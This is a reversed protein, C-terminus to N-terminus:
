KEKQYIQIMKLYKEDRGYVDPYFIMKGKEDTVVTIYDLQIQIPKRLHITYHERRAILSDLSDRTMKQKEDRSLVFRALSDPLDCRVCGHSYARIDKNFFGKSPTDHVYVGYKNHFEFKVLGLANKMGPEQRVRFPFNNEKYKKWNITLPDVETDGRFVKYENKEAYNPNNKMAPLFEKSAISHPQTWYPLSIIARLKSTLQPTTNEPKGVVVRHTSYLTDNYFIRLKYEPINVWIYRDPFANRWRWRELSLIARHIKFRVSEDLSKRSYLGIVGDPKLGNDQQFLSFAEQYVTKNDQDAVKLYGKDILSEKTLNVCAISDEVMAPIEFHIDSLEKGNAFYFLAKALSKYEPRNVGKEAFWTGWLTVTDMELISKQIQTISAAQYPRYTQTATDLFGVKLDYDLQALRATLLFEQIIPLESISDHKYEFFRNDPLGLACPYKLFRNWKKGKETLMSDNTWVANFNNQQYFLYVSDKINQPFQYVALLDQQILLSIREKLPTKTDFVPNTKDIVTNTCSTPIFASLVLLFVFINQRM